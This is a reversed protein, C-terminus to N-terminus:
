LPSWLKRRMGRRLVARMEDRKEANDVNQHWTPLYSEIEPCWPAVAALARRARVYSELWDNLLREELRQSLADDRIGGTEAGHPHEKATAFDALATLANLFLGRVEARHASWTNLFAGLAVGGLTALAVVITDV